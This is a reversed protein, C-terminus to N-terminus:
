KLYCVQELHSTDIATCFHFFRSKVQFFNPCIGLREMDIKELVKWPKLELYAIMNPDLSLNVLDDTIRNFSEADSTPNSETVKRIEHKPHELNETRKQSTMPGPKGQIIAWPQNAWTRIIKMWFSNDMSSLKEFALLGNLRGEFQLM